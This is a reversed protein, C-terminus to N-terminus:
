GEGSLRKNVDTIVHDNAALRGIQLLAMLAFLGSAKLVETIEEPEYNPEISDGKIRRAIQHMGGHTYGHMAKWVQLKIGSLVKDGFDNHTEIVEIMQGFNFPLFDKDLFAQLEEPTACLHLWLARVLAEFQVRILAFAPGNMRGTVLHVIGVHHELCLDLLVGPIRTSDDTKVELGDQREAIWHVLKQASDLVAAVDERLPPPQNPPMDPLICRELTAPLRLM